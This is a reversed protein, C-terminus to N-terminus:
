RVGCVPFQNEWPFVIWDATEAAYYDPMIMSSQKYFLVATRIDAEPLHDRLFSVVWNLSKGSDAIDDVILITKYQRWQALEEDSVPFLLNLSSQEGNINYSSIGIIRVQKNNLMGDGAIFGLPVLGGRSLGIILDPAFNDQVIQSHLDNCLEHARHASVYTKTVTQAAIGQM